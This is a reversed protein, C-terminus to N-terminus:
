GGLVWGGLMWAGACESYSCLLPITITRVPMTVGSPLGNPEETGDPDEPEETPTPVTSSGSPPNETQMHHICWVIIDDEM